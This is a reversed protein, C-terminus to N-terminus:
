NWKIFDTVLCSFICFQNYCSQGKTWLLHSFFVSHIGFHEIYQVQCTAKYGINSRRPKGCKFLFESLRVKKLHSHRKPKLEVCMNKRWDTLNVM